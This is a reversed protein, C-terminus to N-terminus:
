CRCSFRNYCLPRAFSQRVSYQFVFCAVFFSSVVLESPVTGDRFGRLYVEPVVGCSIIM